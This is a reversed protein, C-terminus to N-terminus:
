WFAQSLYINKTAIWPKLLGLQYGNPTAMCMRLKKLTYIQQNNVWFLANRSYKGMMKWEIMLFLTWKIDIEGYYIYVMIKIQKNSYITTKTSKFNPEM